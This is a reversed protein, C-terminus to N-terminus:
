RQRQKRNTSATEIERSNIENEILVKKLNLKEISKLIRDRIEKIEEYELDENFDQLNDYVEKLEYNLMNDSYDKIKNEYEKATM